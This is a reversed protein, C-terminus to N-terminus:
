GFIRRLVAANVVVGEEASRKILDLTGYPTTPHPFSLTANSPGMVDGAGDEAATTFLPTASRRQSGQRQHRGRLDYNDQGARRAASQSLTSSLIPGIEVSIAHRQSDSSEPTSSAVKRPKSRWKATFTRAVRSKNRSNAM